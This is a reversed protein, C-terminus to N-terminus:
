AQVAALLSQFLTQATAIAKAAAQYAQQYNVLDAAQQDLNVGSVSQQTAQTQTLVAQTAQAAVQAAEGRSGINAVLGSYYNDFTQGALLNQNALDGLAVINGNSGPGGPTLSFSDGAAATGASLSITAVEGV